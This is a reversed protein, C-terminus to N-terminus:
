GVLWDGVWASRAASRADGDGGSPAPTPTPQSSIGPAGVPAAGVALGEGPGRLAPRPAAGRAREGAGAAQPPHSM